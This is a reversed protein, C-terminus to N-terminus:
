RPRAFVGALDGIEQRMEACRRTSDEADAQTVGLAKLLRLDLVPEAIGALAQRSWRAAVGTVASSRWFSGRYESDQYNEMSVRVADPLHWRRALWGGTQGHSMGLVESAVESLTREPAERAAALVRAMSDPAVHALALVGLNHLLGCLYTLDPDLDGAGRAHGALMRALTATYLASTWYHEASFGNCNLTQFRGSMAMGVVLNRTMTLGLVRIIADSVSHVPSGRTFYASRALGVIRAAIPPCDEILGSLVHIDAEDDGLADLVRQASESPPPLERLRRIDLCIHEAPTM